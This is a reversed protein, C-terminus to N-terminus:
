KYLRSIKAGPYYHRIIGEGPYGLEALRIAGTQCMGVGHGNGGGLMDVSAVRDGVLAVDIKFLTSKLIANSAPDPKLVWRIRDGQVEHDGRDTAIGIAKARGDFATGLVRLDELRGVSGRGVKLERPLTKKIIGSLTSGSWHVRWRFHRSGRCLSVGPMEPVTDRVGYLYPYPTKWPWALRIDATHGGCCSCYYAKLPVGLFTCVLGRTEDVAKTAGENEGLIGSYVQDMITANLDYLEGSRDKLKSLAYARAVIAQARYAEFQEPKLHGIESPLVGKIYDDLGLVNIAIVGGSVIEFLLGGRYPKGNVALCNGEEAKLFIADLSVIRRKGEALVVEGASTKVVFDGGREIRVLPESEAGEAIFFAAPIRVRISSRAEIVLVRVLPEEGLVALTEPKAEPVVPREAPSVAEELSPKAPAPAAEVPVKEAARKEGCSVLALSCFFLAAFYRRNIRRM